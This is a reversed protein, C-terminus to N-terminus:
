PYRPSGGVWYGKGCSGLTLISEGQARFKWRVCTEGDQPFIDVFYLGDQEYLKVDLHVHPARPFDVTGIHQGRRIYVGERLDAAPAVHFVGYAWGCPTMVDIGWGGNPDPGIWLIRGDEPAVVELGNENVLLDTGVHHRSEALTDFRDGITYPTGEPFPLTLGCVKPTATPKPTPPSNVLKLQRSDEVGVIKVLELDSGAYVWHEPAVYGCLQIWNADANRGCIDYKDSIKGSAVIPYNTGPGGRINLAKIFVVHPKTPTSTPLPATKETPAATFSATPTITPRATTPIAYPTPSVSQSVVVTNSPRPTLTATEVPLPSPNASPTEAIPMSTPQMACGMAIM